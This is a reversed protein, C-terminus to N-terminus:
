GGASGRKDDGHAATDCDVIGAGGPSVTSSCDDVAGSSCTDGGLGGSGGGQSWRGGGVGDDLQTWISCRGRWVRNGWFRVVIGELVM